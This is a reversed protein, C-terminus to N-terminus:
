QFIPRPEDDMLTEKNELFMELDKGAVYEMVVYTLNVTDIVHFFWVTNRHELSQLIEVEPRNDCVEGPNKELVKVAVQTNTPLHSALKVEGFSGFGLSTLVSFDQELIDEELHIAM